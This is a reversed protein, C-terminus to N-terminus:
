DNESYVGGCGVAHFQIWGREPRNTAFLAPRPEAAQVAWGCLLLLVALSGFVTRTNM